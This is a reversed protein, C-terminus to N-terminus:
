RRWKKSPRRPYREGNEKRVESFFYRLAFNLDGKSWEEVDKYVKLGGDLRVKWEAHWKKLLGVTWMSKKKTNKPFRSELDKM